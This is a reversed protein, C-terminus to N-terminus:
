LFASVAFDHFSNRVGQNCFFRSTKFGRFFFITSTTGFGLLISLLATQQYSYSEPNESEEQLKQHAENGPDLLRLLGGQGFPSGIANLIFISVILLAFIDDTFKTALKVYRTLDFFASLTTYGCTWISVWAYFTLFPVDMNKAMDYLVTSMILVPGTSGVIVTPMGSFLSFFVGVWCTALLTEVAGIQNETNTSYVAGFTLTPAIVTIFMLLSVAVTKQNFNTMEAVWHTGVTRKVDALMGRGWPQAADLHVKGADEVLEDNSPASDFNKLNSHGDDLDVNELDAQKNPAM